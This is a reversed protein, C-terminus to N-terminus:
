RGTVTMEIRDRKRAEFWVEETEGDTMTVQMWVQGDDMREIHVLKPNRINVEDFDGDDGRSFRNPKSMAFLKNIQKCQDLTLHGHAVLVGQAWGLWRCKKGYTMGSDAIMRELMGALHDMSTGEPMDYGGADEVIATSLSCKFAEIVDM